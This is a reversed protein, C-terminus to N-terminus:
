EVTGATGNTKEAGDKNSEEQAEQGATQETGESAETEKGKTKPKKAVPPPVKVGSEVKTVSSVAVNNKEMVPKTDIVVRRNSKSFIFSATSSPSPSKHVDKPSTPSHLSLRSPPNEKSRAATRLRIAEQLNMSPSATMAPPSKKTPSLAPSSSTPPIVLSQSKPLTPQPAVEAPPSTSTPSMPSTMILSRRIPKQPAESSTSTTPVQKRMTVEVEPQEPAKPPEPSSNVSRLKVMQLLSPTVVPIAEEKVVPSSTQEPTQKETSSASPKPEASPLPPPLPINAPPSPEPEQAKEPALPIYAVSQPPPPTEQPAPSGTNHCAEEPQAPPPPPISEPPALISNGSEPESPIKEQPPDSEQQPHTPPPPISQPPILMGVPPTEELSVPANEQSSPPSVEETPLTSTEKPPLPSVEIVPPPVAEQAPPPPPIVTVVTTTQPPPPSVEIPPPPPSSVEKPPPSFEIPPPPSSVEKPPPSFEIPPPPSTVEKPPPSFEIPPPPSSVEKPPSSAEITPPPLIVENPPPPPTVKKPPPPPTVEKPPSPPLTVEKPPCSVEIPPPPPIVEKPLPPPTVEKPPPSVELPPPPPVAEKLPPPPPTVEKLKPPPSVELPPPPPLPPSVVLPPQPPSVEGHPPSSPVEQIPPLPSLRKLTTPTVAGVPPPPATYSPPPPISLSTTTSSSDGGPNSSEPPVQVPPILGEGFMPPPPLPYDIEDTVVVQGIPPPPPPWSSEPSVVATTKKSPPPIHLSLSSHAPLTNTKSKVETVQTSSTKTEERAALREERNVIAKALLGNLIDSALVKEDKETVKLGVCQEALRDDNEKHVEANLIVSEQLKKTETKHKREVKVSGEASATPSQRHQRRDKPNKKIIAYVNDPVPPGLLLEISRRSHVWVEPPPPPPAHVKPHPPINFLERLARVSPSTADVSTDQTVKTNKPAEPQTLPPTPSASSSGPFLTKLKALLGRKHRPSSSHSQKLSQATTGEQSSYGSSPSVIKSQGQSADKSDTEDVQAAEVEKLTNLQSRVPSFSVSGTSDELSSTDANYGPSDITKSSMPSSGSKNKENEEAPIVKIDALDRSRRKMKNHLSYSRNPPPPARKPKMVSLSRVFQGDKNVEKGKSVLKGNSTGRSAKSISSHISIKDEKASADGDQSRKQRPTSSSSITSSDSVLTDSSESNSWCSSDSMNPHNQRSASTITSAKSSTTRTSARSSARSTAPSSLVLSSKSVTRVSNRSRGRSIEVVDISPPLVANPIIKSMYAAQPSMTIVPSPLEQQLSNANTMWSVTMSLDDSNAAHSAALQDLQDKSLPHIAKGAATQAAQQLGDTTPSEDTEGNYLQDENVALTWGVRDLGLERQVHQPIGVVTRRHKRRTKSKKGSNLPRFTSEQRTLGSRSSRTSVSSKVSVVSTTDAITSDTMFGGGEGDTHVTMNSITSENDRFEVGNSTEEQQMMKLGELAETHLNELYEPRSAEIFVNEQFLQTAPNRDDDIIRKQVAQQHAQRGSKHGGQHGAPHGDLALDLAPGLGLSQGKSGLDKRKKGKLWGLARGLSHSRKKRSRTSHKKHAFIDQVDQPILEGFGLSDRNSM